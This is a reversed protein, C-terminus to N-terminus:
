RFRNYAGGPPALTPSELLSQTTHTQLLPWMRGMSYTVMSGGLLPGVLGMRGDWHGQRVLSSGHPLILPAHGEECSEPSLGPLRLTPHLLWCTPAFKPSKNIQGLSLAEPLWDQYM